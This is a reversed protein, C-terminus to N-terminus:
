LDFLVRATFRGAHKEISLMHYTAAKVERTIEQNETITEGFCVASIRNNDIRDIKFVKFLIHEVEHIFILENLWSVLLAETDQAVVEVNRNIKTQIEDMNTILSFLGEAAMSFIQKINDGYVIIGIDATHELIEFSPQKSM